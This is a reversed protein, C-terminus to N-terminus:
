TLLTRSAHIQTIFCNKNTSDKVGGGEGGRGDWRRGEELFITYFTSSNQM